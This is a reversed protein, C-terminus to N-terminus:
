NIQFCFCINDRSWCKGLWYRVHSIWPSGVFSWFCFCSFEWVEKFHNKELFSAIKQAHHSYMVVFDPLSHERYYEGVFKLPNLKFRDNEDMVSDFRISNLSTKEELNWRPACDLIKMSIDARHVHSYFPTSHCPMLFDVSSNEPMVQVFKQDDVTKSLFVWKCM